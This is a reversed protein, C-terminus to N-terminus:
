FASLCGIFGIVSQFRAEFVDAWCWVIEHEKPLSLLPIIVRTRPTPNTDYGVVAPSM